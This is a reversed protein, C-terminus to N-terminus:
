CARICCCAWKLFAGVGDAIKRMRAYDIDRPYASAGAIILKPRFISATKALMHYDIRGTLDDLHYPMTTFYKSTSSVKRTPTMHGHSLHGGHALDLYMIRDHPELIADYVASNAPSGSLPQVNVGWKNSDLHIAALAREQCLIEIEDINVNGGYYRNGPSGESYKNTCCSGLAEMVARSTYNESAM